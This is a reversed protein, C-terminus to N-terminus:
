SATLIEAMGHKLTPWLELALSTMTDNASRGKRRRKELQHVPVQATAADRYVVRDPVATALLDLTSASDFLTSIHQTMISADVTNRTRYLVGSVSRHSIAFDARLKSITHVTGRFLERTSLMDPVIPCLVQDSAILAADLMANTSGKTDIIVFDYSTLDILACKIRNFGDPARHLLRECGGESDDSLVIDLRPLATKSISRTIEVHSLLRSVGFEARKMIPFYRSLSPQPDTDIMLVKWGWDSVIGALNACLSTKGIGGKTGCVTLVTMTHQKM